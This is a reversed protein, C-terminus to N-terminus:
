SGNDAHCILCILCADWVNRVEDANRQLAILKEPSVAPMDFLYAVPNRIPIFLHLPFSYRWTPGEFPSSWLSLYIGKTGVIFLFWGLAAFRWVVFSCCGFADDNWSVNIVIYSSSSSSSQTIVWPVYTILRRCVLIQIWRLVHLFQIIQEQPEINIIVVVLKNSRASWTEPKLCERGRTEDSAFIMWWEDKGSGPTQPM